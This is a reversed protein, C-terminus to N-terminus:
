SRLLDIDEVWGTLATLTAPEPARPDVPAEWSVWVTRTVGPEESYEAEWWWEGAPDEHKRGTLTAQGHFGREGAAAEADLAAQLDLVETPFVLVPSSQDTSRGYRRFAGDQSRVFRQESIGPFKVWISTKSTRTVTGSLVENGSQIRAVRDQYEQM